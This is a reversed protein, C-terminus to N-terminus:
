GSKLIVVIFSEFYSDSKHGALFLHFLNEQKERITEPILFNVGINWM